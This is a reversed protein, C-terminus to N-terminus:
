REQAPSHVKGLEGWVSSGIVCCLRVDTLLTLLLWGTGWIDMGFTKPRKDQLKKLEAGSLEVSNAIAQCESAYLEESAAKVSEIVAGSEDDDADEADIVTYGDEVSDGLVSERYRRMEVNLM